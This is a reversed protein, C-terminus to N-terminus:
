RSAAGLLGHNRAFREFLGPWPHDRGAEKMPLGHGGKEFVHLESPVRVAQLATFMMLSNAPKVVPDDAACAIFTPPMNAPLDNEASFRAIREPTVNGGLLERKSDGHAAPESLTIVPFFLGAVTPRAPQADAADIPDYTKLDFRAALRATLHGGASFGITAVRAPDFRWKAAGARILRMARQADQLSVDPGEAWGDHPLRYLLEFVTYGRAAFMRAQSSGERGVAVRVYGGGPIILIAAGNPNEAPIVNLMPTAVHTWAIDDAPGNASRKVWVDSLGPMAGGPPSAPWIPFREVPAAFAPLPLAAAAASGAILSRRTLDM